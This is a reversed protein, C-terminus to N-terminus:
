YLRVYAKNKAITVVKKAENTATMYRVKNIEKEEEIESGLL